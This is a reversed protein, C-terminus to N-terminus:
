DFTDSNLDRSIQSADSHECHSSSRFVERSNVIDLNGLFLNLYGQMAVKARDSVSHQRGLAPRIIPLAASSPVDRSFFLIFYFYIFGGTLIRATWLHPKSGSGMQCTCSWCDGTKLVKMMIYLFLKMMLNMM